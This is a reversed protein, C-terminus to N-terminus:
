RSAVVPGYTRLMAEPNHILDSMCLHSEDMDIKCRLPEVM